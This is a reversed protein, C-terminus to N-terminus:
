PGRDQELALGLCKRCEFREGIKHINVKKWEHECFKDRGFSIYKRFWEDLLKCFGPYVHDYANAIRQLSKNDAGMIMLDANGPLIRLLSPLVYQLSLANELFNHFIQMRESIPILRENPRLSEVLIYTVFAGIINGFNLISNELEDNPYIKLPSINNLLNQRQVENLFEAFISWGDDVFLDLYYKTEKKFVKKESILEKLLNFITKDTLFHLRTHIEKETMGERHVSSLFLVKRISNKNITRISYERKKFKEKKENKLCFEIFFSFM